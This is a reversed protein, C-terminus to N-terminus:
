VQGAHLQLSRGQSRGLRTCTISPLRHRGPLQTHSDHRVTGTVHLCNLAIGIQQLPFEGFENDAGAAAL